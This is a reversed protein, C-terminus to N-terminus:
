PLGHWAACGAATALVVSLLVSVIEQGTIWPYDGDPTKRYISRGGKSFLRYHAAESIPHFAILSYGVSLIATAVKGSIGISIPVM